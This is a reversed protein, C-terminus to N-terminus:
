EAPVQPEATDGSGDRLKRWAVEDMLDGHVRDTYLVGDLHDLEHQFIRATWGEVDEEHPEGGPLDYAVHIREPRIVEGRWGPVSLCGEWGAVAETSRWLIRPNLYLEVPGQAGEAAHDQREVLIIRRSIGVQPAALGVGQAAVLTARLRAELLALAPDHPDIPQAPRRLLDDGEPTGSVWLPLPQDPPGASLRDVESVGLLPPPASPPHHHACALLTLGGVM